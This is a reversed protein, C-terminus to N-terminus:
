IAITLTEPISVSYPIKTRPVSDFGTNAEDINIVEYM